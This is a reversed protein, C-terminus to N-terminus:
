PTYWSAACIVQIGTFGGSDVYVDGNTRFEVYGARTETASAITAQARIQKKPRYGAPITAYVDGFASWRTYSIQMHCTVLKDKRELTFNEITWEAKVSGAGTTSTLRSLIATIESAVPSIPPIMVPTAPTLNTVVIRCLPLESVISGTIINGTTYSPDVPTGSTPTGKVYRPSISEKGTTANREYKIVILDNRKQGQTGSDITVTEGGLDVDFIRGQMSGAGAGIRVTNADILSAALNDLVNLRCLGKGFIAAWIQGDDSAAIHPEGKHGTILNM